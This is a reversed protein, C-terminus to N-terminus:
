QGVVAINTLSGSVYVPGECIVRQGPYHALWTVVNPDHAADGGAAIPFLKSLPLNADDVSVYVHANFAVGSETKGVLNALRVVVASEEDKIRDQLTVFDLSADTTLGISM